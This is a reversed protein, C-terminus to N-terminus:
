GGKKKMLEQHKYVAVSSIELKKAVQEVELGEELLNAVQEQRFTLLEKSFPQSKEAIVQLEDLIEKNLRRTFETKRREFIDIFKKSPKPLYIFPMKNYKGDRLVYLSHNYFKKLEANYQLLKMRIKSKNTKLNVGRCEFNCNMLKMSASDLFDRYPTCFFVIINQHRFTSLVYNFVKNVRSQWERSNISTQPEDSIVIKVKKKKFWPDNILKMFGRIDFVVQREADFEPDLAEAEALGCFTKGEGTGGTIVCLFNMNQKLRKEIYVIESRKGKQHKVLNKM